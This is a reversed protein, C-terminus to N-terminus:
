ILLKRVRWQMAREKMYEQNKLRYKRCAKSNTLKGKESQKYKKIIAGYKEPNFARYIKYAPLDQQFLNRIM